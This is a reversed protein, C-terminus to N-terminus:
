SSDPPPMCSKADVAVKLSIRTEARMWGLCPLFNVNAHIKVRYGTYRPSLMCRGPKMTDLYLYQPVSEHRAHDTVSHYAIWTRARRTYTPIQIYEYLITRYKYTHTYKYTNVQAAGGDGAPADPVAPGAEEESDAAAPHDQDGGPGDQDM